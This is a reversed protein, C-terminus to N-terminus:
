RGRRTVEEVHAGPRYGRRLEYGRRALNRLQRQLTGRALRDEATTHALRGATKDGIARRRVLARAPNTREELRAGAGGGHLDPRDARADGRLRSGGTRYSAAAPGRGTRPGAGRVVGASLRFQPSAAKEARRGSVTADSSHSTPVPRAGRVGAGGPRLLRTLPILGRKRLDDMGTTRAGHVCVSAAAELRYSARRV